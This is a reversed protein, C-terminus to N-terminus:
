TRREFLLEGDPATGAATWGAQEYFRAARTGPGTALRLRCLGKGRAWALMAAHLARGVGAGQADPEVFLAWVREDPGDAAAFGVIAGDKEAVWASGAAVYPLYSSEQVRGPDSLLNERVGLRLRHMAPVDAPAATRISFDM